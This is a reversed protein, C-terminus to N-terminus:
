IVASSRDKISHLGTRFIWTLWLVIGTFKCGDEIVYLVFGAEFFGLATLVVPSDFVLSAAFFLGAAILIAPSNGLLQRFFVIGFAGAVALYALKIYRERIGFDKPLVQEHLMLADDTLLFLTFLGAAFFFRRLYATGDQRIVAYTFFSVGAAAAWGFLGMMSVLGIFPNFGIVDAPDNFLEGYTFSTQFITLFIVSLSFLLATLLWRIGSGRGAPVKVGAEIRGGALAVM